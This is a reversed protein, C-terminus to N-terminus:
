KIWVLQIVVTHFIQFSKKLDFIYVVIFGLTTFM